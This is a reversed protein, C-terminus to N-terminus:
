PGGGFRRTLSERLDEVRALMSPVDWLEVRGDSGAVALVEGDPSFRVSAAGLEIPVRAIETGTSAAVVRVTRDAAAVAVLRGDPSVAAARPAAGIRLLRARTPGLIQLGEAVGVVLGAAPDVLGFTSTPQTASVRGSPVEVRYVTGDATRVAAIEGTIQLAVVREIPWRAAIRGDVADRLVVGDPGGTGISQSSWAVSTARATDGEAWRVHGTAVDVVRLQGDLGLVATASGDPAPAFAEVGEITPGATRGTGVDWFRLNGHHDATALRPGVWDVGRLRVMADVAAVSGKPRADWAQPPSTALILLDDPTFAMAAALAPLRAIEAEEVHQPDVAQWRQADWMRVTHDLSATALRKGDLSWALATVPALHGPISAEQSLPSLRWVDVREGSGVAVRTGRDDCRLLATAGVPGLGEAPRGPTWAWLEDTAPLFEARAATRVLVRRGCPWVERVTVDLPESTQRVGGVEVWVRDGDIGVQAQARTSGPTWTLTGSDLACSVESGEGDSSRCTGALVPAGDRAIRALLGRADPAPAGVEAAREVSRVALREAEIRDGSGLATRAQEVLLAAEGRAEGTRSARAQETARWVVGGGTGGLLLAVAGLATWALYPRFWRELRERRSYDYAQVEQGALFRDVEARLEPVEAYRERPDDRTARAAVALLENPAEDTPATSPPPDGPGRGLLEYLCKGLAHVDSWADLDAVRRADHQEPPAYWATAGVPRREQYAPPRRPRALGWDLLYVEGFEGVMVNRPKLDLHLWGRQHAYAVADCVKLFADLRRSLPWQAGDARLVRELNQGGVIKMTFFPMGVADEGIEYVPVMNPHELQAATRAENLFQALAGPRSAYDARMRKLAVERQALPDWVVLIEGMGGDDVKRPFEFRTGDLGEPTGHLLLAALFQGGTPRLAPDVECMRAILAPLGLPDSRPGDALQPAHRGFIQGLAFWDGERTAEGDRLEPARWPSGSRLGGLGPDVVYVQGHQVRLNEPCLGGHAAGQEHLATLASAIRGIWQLLRHARVGPAAEALDLEVLRRRLVTPAGDEGEVLDLYRPLNPHHARDVADRVGRLTEVDVDHIERVALHRDHVPSFASFTPGRPGNGLLHRPPGQADHGSLGPARLDARGLGESMGEPLPATELYEVLLRRSAMCRGCGRLHRSVELDLPDAVLDDDAPHREPVFSRRRPEADQAPWGSAPVTPPVGSSWGPRSDHTM